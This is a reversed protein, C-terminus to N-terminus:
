ESLCSYINGTVSSGFLARFHITCSLFPHHLMYDHKTSQKLDGWNMYNDGSGDDDDGDDDCDVDDVDDDHHHDHVPGPGYVM